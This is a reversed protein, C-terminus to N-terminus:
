EYCEDYIEKLNKNRLEISYCEHYKKVANQTYERMIQPDEFCQFADVLKEVTAQFRGEQYYLELRKFYEENTKWDIGYGEDFINIPVDVLIGYEGNIFDDSQQMRFVIVPKGYSTAEIYMGTDTFATAIAVDSTTYLQEKLM